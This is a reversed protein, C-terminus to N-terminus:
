HEEKLGDLQVSGTMEESLQMGRGGVGGEGTSREEEEEEEKRVPPRMEGDATVVM